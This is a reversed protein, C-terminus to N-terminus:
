GYDTQADQRGKECPHHMFLMSPRLNMPGTASRDTPDNFKVPFVTGFWVRRCLEKRRSESTPVRQGNRRRLRYIVGGNPKLYDVDACDDLAVVLISLLFCRHLHLPLLFSNWFSGEKWEQNMMTQADFIHLQVGSGTCPFTRRM